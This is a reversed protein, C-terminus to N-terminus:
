ERQILQPFYSRRRFYNPYRNSAMRSRYPNKLLHPIARRSKSNHCLFIPRIRRSKSTPLGYGFDCRRPMSSVNKAPDIISSSVINTEGSNDEITSARDGRDSCNAPIGNYRRSRLRRGFVCCLGQQQESLRWGGDRRGARGHYRRNTHTPCISSHVHSRVFSAPDSVFHLHSTQLHLPFAGTRIPYQGELYESM